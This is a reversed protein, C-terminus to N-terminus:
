RAFAPRRLWPARCSEWTKECFVAEICEEVRIAVFAEVGAGIERGVFCLEMFCTRRGKKARTRSMLREVWASTRRGPKKLSWMTRCRSFGMGMQPQALGPSFTVTARDPPDVAVAVALASPRQFTARSDIGAPPGCVSVARPEFLISILSTSIPSTQSQEPCDLISHLTRPLRFGSSSAAAAFCGSIRWM